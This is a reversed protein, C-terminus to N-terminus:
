RRSRFWSARRPLNDRAEGVKMPSPRLSRPTVFRSVPVRRNGLGLVGREAFEADSQYAKAIGAADQDGVVLFGETSRIDTLELHGAIRPVVFGDNVRIVEIGAERLEKEM